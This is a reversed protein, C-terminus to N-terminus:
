NSRHPGDLINWGYEWSKNYIDTNNWIIYYYEDFHYIVDNEDTTTEDINWVIKVKREEGDTYSDLVKSSDWDGKEEVTDKLCEKKTIYDRDPIVEM